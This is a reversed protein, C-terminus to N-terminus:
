FKTEASIECSDAAISLTRFRITKKTTQQFLNRDAAHLAGDM